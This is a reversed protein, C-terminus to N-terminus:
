MAAANSLFRSGQGFNMSATVLRSCVFSCIRSHSRCRSNLVHCSRSSRTADASGTVACAPSNRAITVVIMAALLADYGLWPWGPNHRIGGTHTACQGYIAALAGVVLVPAAFVASLPDIAISLSGLPMSWPLTVASAHGALGAVVAPLGLLCGVVAGWAGVAAAVVPRTSLSVAAVGSALLVLVAAVLWLVM